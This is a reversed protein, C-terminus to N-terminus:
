QWKNESISEMLNKFFQKVSAGEDFWKGIIYGLVVLALIFLTKLIGFFILLMALFFGLIIGATRGFNLFILKLLDNNM